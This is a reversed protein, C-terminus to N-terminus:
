GRPNMSEPCYPKPSADDQLVLDKLAQAIQGATQGPITDLTVACTGLGSTEIFTLQGGKAGDTTTLVTSRMIRLQSYMANGLGHITYCTGNAVAGPQSRIGTVIQGGTQGPATLLLRPTRPFKDEQEQNEPPIEDLTATVTQAACTPNTNIADRARELAAKTDDGAMIPVPVSCLATAGERHQLIAALHFEGQNPSAATQRLVTGASTPSRMVGEEFFGVEFL